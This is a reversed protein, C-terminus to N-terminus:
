QSTNVPTATLRFAAFTYNGEGEYSVENTLGMTLIDELRKKNNDDRIKAQAEGFDLIMEDAFLTLLVHTFFTLRPTEQATGQFCLCM